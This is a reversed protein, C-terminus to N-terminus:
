KGWYVSFEKAAMGIVLYADSPLAAPMDAIRIVEVFDDGGAAARIKEYQELRPSVTFQAGDLEKGQTDAFLSPAMYGAAYVVKEPGTLGPKGNSMLYLGDDKVLWLGPAVRGVQGYIREHKKAANAHDMLVQVKKREFKLRTSM